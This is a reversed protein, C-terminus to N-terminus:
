AQIGNVISAAIKFASTGGSARIFVQQIGAEQFNLFNTGASPIEFEPLGEDFSVFISNAGTNFIQIHNAFKPLIFNMSGTPPLNNTGAAVNPATGVFNLIRRGASFFGPPPVVLIPGPPLFGPVGFPQMAVTIFSIVSDGPVTASAFDNLNFTARTLGPTREDIRGRRQLLLTKSVFQTKSPVDFMATPGAFAADLTEGAAFQYASVNPQSRVILDILGASREVLQAAVTM